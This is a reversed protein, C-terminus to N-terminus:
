TFLYSLFTWLFHWAFSINPIFCVCIQWKIVRDVSSVRRAVTALARVAPSRHQFTLVLSRRIFRRSRDVCLDRSHEAPSRCIPQIIAASLQPYTFSYNCAVNNSLHFPTYKFINISNSSHWNSSCNHWISCYSNEFTLITIIQPYQIIVKHM